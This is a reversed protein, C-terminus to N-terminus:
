PSKLARPRVTGSPASALTFGKLSGTCIRGIPYINVKVDSSFINEETSSSHQAIFAVCVAARRSRPIHNRSPSKIVRSTKEQLCVPLYPVRAWFPNM